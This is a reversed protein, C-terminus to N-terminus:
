QVGIAFLQLGTMHDCLVCICLVVTLCPSPLREQPARSQSHVDIHQRYYFVSVSLSAVTHCKITEGRMIGRHPSSVHIGVFTDEPKM